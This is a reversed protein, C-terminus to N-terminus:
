KPARLVLSAARVSAFQLRLRLWNITEGFSANCLSNYKETLQTALTQIVKWAQPALVSDASIVFPTFSGGMAACSDNHKRIEEEEHSKLVDTAPKDVYSAADSDVVRIDLFAVEQPQWIGRITLDARRGEIIVETGDAETVTTRERVVVEKEVQNYGQACVTHLFNNIEHHQKTRLGSHKCKFLHRIAPTTETGILTGCHVSHEDMEKQFALAVGDRFQAVLPSAPTRTAPFV